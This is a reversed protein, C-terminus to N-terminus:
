GDKGKNEQNVGVVCEREKRKKEKRVMFLPFFFASNVSSNQLTFYFSKINSNLIDENKM